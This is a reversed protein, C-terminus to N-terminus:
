LTAGLDSDKTSLEMWRGHFQIVDCFTATPLLLNRVAYTTDM